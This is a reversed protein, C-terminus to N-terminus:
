AGNELKFTTNCKPCIYIEIWNISESWDFKRYWTSTAVLDLEHSVQEGCCPCHYSESEVLNELDYKLFNDYYKDDRMVKNM